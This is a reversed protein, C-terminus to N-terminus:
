DQQNIDMRKTMKKIISMIAAIKRNLNAKISRDLIFQFYLLLNVKKIVIITAASETLNMCKGAAQMM